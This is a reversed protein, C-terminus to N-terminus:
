RAEVPTAQAPSAAPAMPGKRPTVPMGPRVLGKLIITDGAKLGSNVVRLGDVVPGLQIPRYEAKNDKGVVLVYNRGQDSGVAQDDILIAPQPAGLSLKVKAFMGPSLEGRPNRIVARARITGTTRDIGNGLFDLTASHPFGQDTMLGVAVPLRASTGGKRARGAFNLYTAEDIDFLVHLPDVSMITTLPASGAGGAVMNGETVLVRDVRGSIPATVRTFSLDLKAASVAARAAQVGAQRARQQSLADDYQRRSVAGTKVLSQARDLEAQAQVAQAEAQRLQAQAQDLAVQFPRPDIQFLPQGRQVIGGEPVSVSILQGSVRPRLEVSKPATLAGNFESSPAVERVLVDAVPVQPAAQQGPPGGPAAAGGGDSCAATAGLLALAGFTLLHTVSKRM